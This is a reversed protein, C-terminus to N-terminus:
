SGCRSPKSASAWKSWSISVRHSRTMTTLGIAPKRSIMQPPLQVTERRGRLPPASGHRSRNVVQCKGHRRRSGDLHNAKAVRRRHQGGIIPVVLRGVRTLRSKTIRSTVLAPPRRSQSRPRGHHRGRSPRRRRSSLCRIVLGKQPIRRLFKSM